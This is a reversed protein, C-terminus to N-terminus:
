QFLAQEEPTMADWEEQTVGAPLEVGADQVQPDSPFLSDIFADDNGNDKEYAALQAAYISRMQPNLQQLREQTIPTGDPFKPGENQQAPAAQQELDAIMGDWEPNWARGAKSKMGKLANLRGASKQKIVADSDGFAPFWQRKYTDIESKTAAAGTMARLYGDIFEDAAQDYLRENEGGVIGAVQEMGGARNYGAGEKAMINRLGNISVTAHLGAARESETPQGTQQTSPRSNVYEKGNEDVQVVTGKPYGRAEIEAPTLNKISKGSGPSQSGQAIKTRMDVYGPIPQPPGKGDPGYWMGEPLDQLKQSDATDYVLTPKGDPGIAVVGKPTNFLTPDDAKGKALEIQAKQYASMPEPVTPAIGLKGSLMAIQGDLAEDTFANPDVPQQSLDQGIIQGIQQANTTWWQARQEAPLQRQQQMLTLTQKAKEMGDAKADERQKEFGAPDFGRQFGRVAAGLMENQPKKPASMYPSSAALANPVARPAAPSPAPMTPSLYNPTQLGSSPLAMQDPRQMMPALANAM